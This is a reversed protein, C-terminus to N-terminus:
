DPQPENESYNNAKKKCFAYCNVIKGVADEGYSNRELLIDYLVYGRWRLVVKLIQAM